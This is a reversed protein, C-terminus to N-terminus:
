AKIDKSWYFTNNHKHILENGEKLPRVPLTLEEFRDVNGCYSCKKLHSDIVTRLEKYTSTQEDHYINIKVPLYKNCESCEYIYVYEM